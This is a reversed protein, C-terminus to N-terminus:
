LACLLKFIGSILLSCIGIHWAYKAADFESMGARQAVQFAHGLVFFVMGFTSPTDLGLPMATVDTRGTRRVLRLAMWFFLLDGVLVGIATGPIMYRLSFSAPLKYIGALLGVMLLLDAVNDLM